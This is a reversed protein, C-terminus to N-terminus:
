AQFRLKQAIRGVGDFSVRATEKRGRARPHRLNVCNGVSSKCRPFFTRSNQVKRGSVKIKSCNECSRQLVRKGRARPDKLERRRATANSRPCEEPEVVM